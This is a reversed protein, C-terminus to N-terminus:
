ERRRPDALRRADSEDEMLGSLEEEALADDDPDVGERPLEGDIAGVTSLYALVAEVREDSLRHEPLAPMLANGLRIQHRMQAPSWHYGEPNVRGAHCAACLSHFTRSGDAVDRSRIPGELDVHVRDPPRSAGCGILLCAISVLRLLNTM